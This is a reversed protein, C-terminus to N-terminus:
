LLCELKESILEPEPCPKNNGEADDKVRQCTICLCVETRKEQANILDPMERKTMRNKVKVLHLMVKSRLEGLSSLWIAVSTYPRTPQSPLGFCGTSEEAESSKSGTLSSSNLMQWQAAAEIAEKRVTIHDPEVLAIRICLATSLTRDGDLAECLSGIPDRNEKDSDHEESGPSRGNAGTDTIQTFSNM